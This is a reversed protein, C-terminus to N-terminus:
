HMRASTAEGVPESFSSEQIDEEDVAAGTWRAISDGMDGFSFSWETEMNKRKSM